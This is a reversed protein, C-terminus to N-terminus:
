VIEYFEYFLQIAAKTRVNPYPFCQPYDKVRQLQSVRELFLSMTEKRVSGNRRLFQGWINRGLLTFMKEKQASQGFAPPFLRRYSEWNYLWSGGQVLAADPHRQKIQQLMARLESTRADIRHYSLSGYTSADQNSFHLHIARIEPNYEYAFCGWHEGDTFKPIAPYRQLYFQHTFDVKKTTQQLGQTYAQWVRNTPDLSWDLGLVRYFATFRLLVQDLPQQSVDAIKQAFVLQLEFFQKSYIPSADTELPIVRERHLSTDTIKCLSSM